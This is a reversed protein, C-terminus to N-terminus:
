LVLSLQQAWALLQEDQGRRSAVQLGLPLGNDALGAPLTVTPMGTYTWPLNMIPDGTSGLGHPAPGTAAPSIWADIGKEQMLCELAEKTTEQCARAKEVQHYDAKQGEHIVQATVAPYLYAYEKFWTAHVRAMEFAVILKHARNIEQIDTLADVRTITYGAEEFMALQSEFDERSEQSAQELYPGEPVGLVPKKELYQPLPTQWARCLVQAALAMGEMDQTFFGVHDVSPASALVGDLPIRGFTPKFGMVGCFAAPRIISGITQSGLALPFFGAAVGAASGSSSGGPTHETNHPNRTPGPAFHAFTATVTKGLILAGAQRLMTVCSAEKGEFLEAPFQSGARTAFGDVNFIDKVGVPVGFLLPRKEPDPYKKQLTQAERVLRERREAEPVLAHIFPEVESIHDCLANIYDVLDLENERLSRATEALPSTYIYM